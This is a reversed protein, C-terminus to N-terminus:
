FTQVPAQSNYFKSFGFKAGVIFIPGTYAFDMARDFPNQIPRSFFPMSYRYGIGLYGEVMIGTPLNDQIGITGNIEFRHVAGTLKQVSYVWVENGYLETASPLYERFKSYFFNYGAGIAIYGTNNYSTKRIFKRHIQLGAGLLKYLDAQSFSIPHMGRSLYYFQPAFVYAKKDNQYEYDFRLGHFLVYHPVISFSIKKIKPKPTIVFDNQALILNAFLFTILILVTKRM